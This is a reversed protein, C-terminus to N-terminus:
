APPAGKVVAFGRALWDTTGGTVLRVDRGDRQLLSALAASRVEDGCVVALPRGAPLAGSKGWADTYPLLVAGPIHGYRYEFPERADVVQVEGLRGELEDVTLVPTTATEFGANKWAVLGGDLWGRVDYGADALLKAAIKAIPEPEAHVVLPVDMPLMMEAREALDARNFQLNVAGPVHEAAFPRPTRLDLLVAGGDLAAHLEHPTM